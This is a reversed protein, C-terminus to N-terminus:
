LHEPPKEGKKDKQLNFQLVLHQCQVENESYWWICAKNKHGM